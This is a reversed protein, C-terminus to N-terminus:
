DDEQGWIVQGHPAALKDVTRVVCQFVQLLRGASTQCADRRHTGQIPAGVVTVVSARNPVPLYWRGWFYIVTM